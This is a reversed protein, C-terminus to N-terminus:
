RESWATDLAKRYAKATQYPDAARMIPSLVAVGSAGSKICDTLNEPTIGGIAIIPIDVVWATRTILQLGQPTVEPHSKSAFITGVIIYDAGDDAAKKAGEVSHVSRGILLRKGALPKPKSTQREPMHLGDACPSDEFTVNGNIVLLNPSPVALRMDTAQSRLAQLPTVKDRWQVANVGGLVAQGVTRPLDDQPETVLMLWPSPLCHNM